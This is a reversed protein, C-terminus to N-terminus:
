LGVEDRHTDEDNHENQIRPSPRRPTATGIIRAVALWGIALSLGLTTEVLMRLLGVNRKTQREDESHEEWDESSWSTHSSFTSLTNSRIYTYISGAMDMGMLRDPLIGSFRRPRPASREFSPFVVSNQEEERTREHASAIYDGIATDSQDSSPPPGSSSRLHHIVPDEVAFSVSRRKRTNPSEGNTPSTDHPSTGNRNANRPAEKICSKFSENSHAPSLDTPISISKEMSSFAVGNDIAPPLPVAAKVSLGLGQVYRPPDTGGLSSLSSSSSSSSSRMFMRPSSSSRATTRSGESTPPSSSTQTAIHRRLSETSSKRPRTEIGVNKKTKPSGRAQPSSHQQPQQHHHVQDDFTSGTASATSTSASAVPANSYIRLVPHFNYGPFATGSKPSVKVGDSKNSPTPSDPAPSKSRQRQRTTKSKTTTKLKDPSM